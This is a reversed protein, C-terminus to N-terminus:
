EAFFIRHWLRSICLIYRAFMWHLIVIRFTESINSMTTHQLNLTVAGDNKSLLGVSHTVPHLWTCCRGVAGFLLPYFSTVVLFSFPLSVSFSSHPFHVLRHFNYLMRYHPCLHHCLWNLHAPMSNLQIWFLLRADAQLSMLPLSSAKM